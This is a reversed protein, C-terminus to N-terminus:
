RFLEPGTVGKHIQRNAPASSTIYVPEEVPEDIADLIVLRIQLLLDIAEFSGLFLCFQPVLSREVCRLFLRFGAMFPENKMKDVVFRQGTDKQLAGWLTFTNALRVDETSVM